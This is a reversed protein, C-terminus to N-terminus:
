PGLEHSVPRLTTRQDIPKVRLISPELPQPITPGHRGIPHHEADGRRAHTGPSELSSSRIVRANTNRTAATTPSTAHLTGAGASGAQLGTTPWKSAMRTGGPWPWQGTAGGGGSGNSHVAPRTHPPM